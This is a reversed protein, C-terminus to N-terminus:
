DKIDTNLEGKIFKEDKKLLENPNVPLFFSKTETSQLDFNDNYPNYQNLDKNEIPIWVQEVPFHEVLTHLEREIYYKEKDLKGELIVPTHGLEKARQIAFTAGGHLGEVIQIKEPEIHKPEASKDFYINGEDDQDACKYFNELTTGYFVQFKKEDENPEQENIKESM